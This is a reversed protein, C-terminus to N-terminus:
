ILFSLNIKSQLTGNAQQGVTFSKLYVTFRKSNMKQSQFFPNFVKKKDVYNFLTQLNHRYSNIHNDHSHATNKNSDHMARHLVWILKRKKNLKATETKFNTVIRTM